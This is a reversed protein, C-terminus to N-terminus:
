RIKTSLKSQKASVEFYDFRSDKTLQGAVCVRFFKCDPHSVVCGLDTFKGTKEQHGLLAWRRGDYSGYIYMGAYTDGFYCDYIKTQEVVGSEGNPVIDPVLSIVTYNQIDAQLKTIKIDFDGESDITQFASPEPTLDPVTIGRPADGETKVYVKVKSVGTGFKIKGRIHFTGKGLKERFITNDSSIIKDQIKKEGITEFYGRAVFRDIQKFGISDLKIERSLLFISNDADSENDVQYFKGNKVRYATPYNNVYEDAAYDRRSWIGEDELVYTYNYKPNSIMLERENHNYCVIAGKLYHLFDAKTKADDPLGAIKQMEWANKTIKDADISVYDGELPQGIEEVENGAINMLGRDTTFVVGSDIPTVSKPNNCVDRAIIRSNTYAMEGNADVFMAYIGDKCFVYLPAQGTQGTGVSIANACMAVVESSGVQYTQKAEFVFPNNTVSVKLGNPFRETNKKEKCGELWEEMSVSGGFWSSINSGIPKLDDSVYYAINLYNHPKLNFSRFVYNVSGSTVIYVNASEARSDPFTLLADIGELSASVGTGNIVRCVKQYANDVKIKYEVVAIPIGIKSEESCLNIVGRPITVYTENDAFRVGSVDKSISATADLVVSHNNQTHQEMPYGHFQTSTYNAIHLRGNYNFQSKPVYSMRAFASSPLTDNHILNKLLGEYKYDKLSVLISKSGLESYKFERLLYFNNNMLEDRVDAIPRMAKDMFQSAYTGGVAENRDEELKEFDYIDVEPTVFVCISQIIESDDKIIENLESISLVIDSGQVIYNEHRGGEQFYSFVSPMWDESYSQNIHSVAFQSGNKYVRTYDVYRTKGDAGKITNPKLTSGGSSHIDKYVFEFDDVVKSQSNDYWSMLARQRPFLLVPNSACIYSGDYLKVAALALFPRTFVNSDVAKSYAIKLADSYKVGNEIEHRFVHKGREAVDLADEGDLMSPSYLNFHIKGFPFLERDSIKGNQDTNVAKYNNDMTKFLFYDFLDEGEDKHDIVTILHGTQNIFVEGEVKCLEQPEISQFDFSEHETEEESETRNTKPSLNAIWCLMKTTKDVGLLHRYVNTHIFMQSYGSADFGVIEMGDGSTRWSGDKYRLNVLDECMGDQVNIKDLHHNIGQLSIAKVDAM